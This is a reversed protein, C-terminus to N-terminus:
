FNSVRSTFGKIIHLKDSVKADLSSLGVIHGRKKKIMQGLFVRTTKSSNLNILIMRM